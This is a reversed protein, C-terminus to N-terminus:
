QFGVGHHGAHASTLNPARSAQAADFGVDPPIEAGILLRCTLGSLSWALLRLDRSARGFDAAPGGFTGGPGAAEVIKLQRVPWSSLVSAADADSMLCATLQLFPHIPV